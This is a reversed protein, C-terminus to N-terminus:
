GYRVGFEFISGHLKMQATYLEQVYLFRSFLRRDIYLGINLLIEEKPIPSSFLLEKLQSRNAFDEPNLRKQQESDHTFNM